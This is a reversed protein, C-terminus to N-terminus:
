ATTKKRSPLLLQLKGKTKPTTETKVVPSQAFTNVAILDALTKKYSEFSDQSLTNPIYWKIEAKDDDIKGLSQNRNQNCITIKNYVTVLFQPNRNADIKTKLINIQWRLNELEKKKESIGTRLANKLPEPNSVQKLFDDASGKADYFILKNAKTKIDEPTKGELLFKLDNIENSFDPLRRKLYRKVITENDAEDNALSISFSRLIPLHDSDAYFLQKKPTLKLEKVDSIVAGYQTSLSKVARGSTIVIQDL